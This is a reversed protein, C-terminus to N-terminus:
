LSRNAAARVELWLIGIYDFLECMARLRAHSGDSDDGGDNLRERNAGTDMGAGREPGSAANRQTDALSCQYERLLQRRLPEEYSHYCCVAALDFYPDGLGAYEWDLLCLGANAGTIRADLGQPLRKRENEPPFGEDMSDVVNLHYLDNHCLCVQADDALAEALQLAREFAAGGGVADRRASDELSTWYGRVIAAYDIRRVGDPLPLGHLQRL